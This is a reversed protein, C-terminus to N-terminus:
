RPIQSSTKSKRDFISHTFYLSDFPTQTKTKIKNNKKTKVGNKRTCFFASFFNYTLQVVVGVPVEAHVPM